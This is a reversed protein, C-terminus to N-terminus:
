HTRPTRHRWRQLALLLLLFIWFSLHAAAWAALHAGYGILLAIWAALSLFALLARLRNWGRWFRLAAVCGLAWAALSAWALLIILWGGAGRLGSALATFAAEQPLAYRALFVRLDVSWPSDAAFIERPTFADLHPAALLLAVGGITGATVASMHFVPVAEADAPALLNFQAAGLRMAGLAIAMALLMAAADLAYAITTEPV